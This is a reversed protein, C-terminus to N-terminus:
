GDRYENMWDAQRKMDDAYKMWRSASRETSEFAASKRLSKKAASFKQQEAQAIGLLLWAKGPEDLDKELARSLAAEAQKWNGTEVYLNSISIWPDGKSTTQAMREFAKIAADREKASTLAVALMKLYDENEELLKKAFAKELLRAAHEPIGKVVSLQVLSKITNEKELVGESFAIKLVALASSEDDLMVYVSALQEWYGPKEPWRNILQQLTKAAERFRELEFYSATLLQFWTEKPNDSLSVAKEAYPISEDYRKVQAYINAMFIYQSPKPETLQKFWTEAFSLAETYEGLAAHLQAVMYGVNYVVNQPLRNLLLSQKLHDIAEPFNERAMEVYGLTQLTLAQDLTDEDVETLLTKLRAYAEETNGEGMIEQIDTLAKYTKSSVSDPGAVVLSCYMASFVFCAFLVRRIKM